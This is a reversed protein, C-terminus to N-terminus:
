RAIRLQVRAPESRAFRDEYDERTAHFLRLMKDLDYDLENFHVDLMEQLLTPTERPFALGAPEALRLPAMQRFLYRQQNYTIAAPEMKGAWVLIAMMSVRWQRKLDALRVMDLRQMQPRIEEQPMLFESAFLMAEKEPDRNEGVPVEAHMLLHGLEHALSFRFRDAPVNREVFLLPTNGQTLMNMGDLGEAEYNIPVIIIGNDEITKSLDDVRGKPLRWIRRLEQAAAVPSGQTEVDWSFFNLEPPEASVLLAEVDAKVLNMKAQAKKLAKGPVRSRKRWLQNNPNYLHLRRGFFSVPYRLTEALATLLDHTVDLFGNELNSIVSQSIGSQDALERQSLGRSERALLFLSPDYQRTIEM